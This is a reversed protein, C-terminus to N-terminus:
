PADWGMEVVVAEHDSLPEGDGDVFSNDVQWSVPTLVVSSSSKFLVRDIREPEPCDLTRCADQLGAGTLLMQFVAEDDDKLNTDGAIILARDTPRTGLFAVLQEMQSERADYDANGRGADAHLDYVDVQAGPALEFTAVAFGKETLCDSGQDFLGNCATWRHHAVGNFPINSFMALGDGLSGTMSTSPPAKHPHNASSDLAAHYAFDEQVLVLDFANLLPSILPTNTEPNEDSIIAPLGAVNYTLLSFTEAAVFAADPSSPAADPDVDQGIRADPPSGAGDDDGPDEIRAGSTCAAASAAALLAGLGLNTAARHRAKGAPTQMDLEKPGPVDPM